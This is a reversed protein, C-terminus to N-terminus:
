TRNSLLFTLLPVIFVPSDCCPLCPYPFHCELLGWLLLSSLERLHDAGRQDPVSRAPPLRLRPPPL